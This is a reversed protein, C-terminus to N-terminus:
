KKNDIIDIIQSTNKLSSIKRDIIQQESLYGSIKLYNQVAKENEVIILISNEEQIYKKLYLLRAFINPTNIYSRNKETIMEFNFM